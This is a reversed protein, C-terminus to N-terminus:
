GAAMIPTGTPAPIDIGEHFATRGTIPDRRNGFGSTVVGGAIPMITPYNRLYGAIGATYAGINEFLQRQVDLEGVLMEVRALLEDETAPSYMSAGLLQVTPPAVFESQGNIEYVLSAQSVNLRRVTEAIQPIMQGKDELRALIVLRAAEFDRIQQELHDIYQQTYDLGDQHREEQQAFEARVRMQAANLREYVRGSRDRLYVHAQASAERYEEFYEITEVLSIELNRARNELYSGRLYFGSVLASVAFFLFLVGIFVVRPIHLSRTKGVSPVVMLSIYKREKHQVPNVFESVKKVNAVQQKRKFLM